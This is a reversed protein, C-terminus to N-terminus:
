LYFKKDKILEEVIPPVLYRISKDEKILQRIYTASINLLPADIFQINPHTFKYEGKQGIRQYAYVLHHNLLLEFNKWKPLQDINDEGLILAFQHQPYKEELYTLTDITYSPKPLKFEIDCAKFSYNDQIAAQVLDLRDFEHLLSNSKKLPNQPSVVFWIEELPTHHLMMQAIILHGHHIPNFSGFFLGIKAM